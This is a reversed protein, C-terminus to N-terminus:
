FHVIVQRLLFLDLLDLFVYTPFQHMIQIIRIDCGYADTLLHYIALLLEYNLKRDLSLGLVTGFELRHISARNFCVELNCLAFDVGFHELTLVSRGETNELRCCHRVTLFPKIRDHGADAHSVYHLGRACDAADDEVRIGPLRVNQAVPM